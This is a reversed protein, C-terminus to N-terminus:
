REDVRLRLGNIWGLTKIWGLRGRGFGSGSTMMKVLPSWSVPVSSRPAPLETTKLLSMAPSIVTGSSLTLSSWVLPLKATRRLSAGMLLMAAARLIVGAGM